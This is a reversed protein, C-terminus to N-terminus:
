AAVGYGGFAIHFDRKAEELLWKNKNSLETVNAMSAGVTDFFSKLDKQAESLLWMNKENIQVRILSFGPSKEDVTGDECASTERVDQEAELADLSDNPTQSAATDSPVFDEDDSEPRESEIDKAPVSNGDQFLNLLDKEAEKILWLNKESLQFMKTADSVGGSVTWPHSDVDIERQDVGERCEAQSNSRGDGFAWMVDNRAEELLWQNKESLEISPVMNEIKKPIQWIFSGDPLAQLLNPLANELSLCGGQFTWILDNQAEELLWRNKESLELM